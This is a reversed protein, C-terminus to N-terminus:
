GDRRQKVKSLHPLYCEAAFSTLEQYSASDLVSAVMEKVTLLMDESLCAVQRAVGASSLSRPCHMQEDPAKVM